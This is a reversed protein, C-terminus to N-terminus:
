KGGYGWQCALRECFQVVDRSHEWMAKAKYSLLRPVSLKRNGPFVLKQLSCSSTHGFSTVEVLLVSALFLLKRTKCVRGTRGAALSAADVGWSSILCLEIILRTEAHSVLGLPSHTWDALETAPGLQPTLSLQASCCYCLSCKKSLM